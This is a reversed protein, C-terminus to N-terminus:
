GYLAGADVTVTTDTYTYDGPDITVWTGNSLHQEVVIGTLGEEGTDCNQNVAPNLVIFTDSYDDNVDTADTFTYFAYISAGLFITAVLITLIVDADIFSFRKRKM